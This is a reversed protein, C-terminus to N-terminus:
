AGALMLPLSRLWPDALGEQISRAHYLLFDSQNPCLGQDELAAAVLGCLAEVQEAAEDDIRDETYEFISSRAFNNIVLQNQLQAKEEEARGTQGAPRPVAPM